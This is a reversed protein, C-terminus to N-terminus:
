DGPCGIQGARSVSWNAAMRESIHKESGLAVSQFLASTGERQEQVLLEM